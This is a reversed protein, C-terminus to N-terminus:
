RKPLYAETYLKSMDPEHDLLKLDAFSRKLTTLSNADFKGNDNFAPMTRDYEKAQVSQSFGTVGRIIEVTKAKNHRMFDVTEFWAVLFGRIADPNSDMLHKSAFIVTACMGGVYDSVPLLLRGEKQEELQFASSTTSSNADLQHTRFGAVVAAFQSGIAVPTVGDPGWGHQRALERAMWYTLSNVTSVGIKKGKLDDASRIPSDWPVSIGIFVPPSLPSAIALVPAGKAVFALEPGAGVGIDVSGAAMGQHLKAGGEFDVIQVELGHKKFIGEKTGVEIPMMPMATPSAKGVHLTDAARSSCAFAAVLALALAIRRM